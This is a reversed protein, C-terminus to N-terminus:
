RSTPVPLGWLRVTGDEHGTVARRGDPSFAVCTIREKIRSFVHLEHQLDADWLHLASYVPGAPPDVEPKKGKSPVAVEPAPLTAFLARSGDPALALATVLGKPGTGGSLRKGTAVDWLEIAQNRTTSSLVRRVDASLAGHTVAEKGDGFTRLEQRGTEASWLAFAHDFHEWEPRYVTRIKKRVEEQGGVQEKVEEEVQHPVWNLSGSRVLVYPEDRPTFGLDAAPGRPLTHLETGSGAVWVLSRERDSSLVRRGDHSFALKEVPAHHGKFERRTRGTSVDWLRVTCDQGAAGGGSVVQQGDPAFAVSLVPAEHQSFCHSQKGTDAEWVRVTKDLSGSALQSGDASFAVCTVADTHGKFFRLEAVPDAPRMKKTIRTWLDLFPQTPILGYWFAAATGGALVLLV